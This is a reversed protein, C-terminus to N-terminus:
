EDNEECDDGEHDECSFDDPTFLAIEAFSNRHFKGFMCYYKLNQTRCYMCDICLLSEILAMSEYM